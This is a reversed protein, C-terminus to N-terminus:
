ITYILSVKYYKDIETQSRESLMINELEMWTKVFSLIDYYKPTQVYWMKLIWGDM